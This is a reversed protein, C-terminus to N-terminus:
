AHETGTWGRHLMLETDLLESHYINLHVLPFSWCLSRCVAPLMDQTRCSQSGQFPSQENPRLVKQRLPLVAPSSQRKQVPRRPKRRQLRCPFPRVDSACLATQHPTHSIVLQLSTEAKLTNRCCFERSLAVSTQAQRQTKYQHTTQLTASVQGTFFTKVRNIYQQM